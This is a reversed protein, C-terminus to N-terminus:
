EDNPVVRGAVVSPGLARAAGSGLLPADCALPLPKILTLTTSGPLWWSPFYSPWSVALNLEAALTSLEDKDVHYLHSVVAAARYPRITERYCYNHDFLDPHRGLFHTTYPNGSHHKRGALVDVTFEKTTLKWNHRRGFEMALNNSIIIRERYKKREYSSLRRNLPVEGLRWEIQLICAIADEVEKDTMM